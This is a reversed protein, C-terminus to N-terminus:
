MSRHPSRHPSLGVSTNLNIALLTRKGAIGATAPIRNNQCIQRCINKRRQERLIFRGSYTVANRFTIANIAFEADFHIRLGSSAVAFPTGFGRNEYAIRDIDISAIMVTRHPLPHPGFAHQQPASLTQPTAVRPHAEISGTPRQQASHANPKLSHFFGPFATSPLKGLRKASNRSPPTSGGRRKLCLIRFGARRGIEGSERNSRRGTLVTSIQGGCNRLYDDGVTKSAFPAM